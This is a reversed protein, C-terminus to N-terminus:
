KLIRLLGASPGTVYSIWSKSSSLCIRQNNAINPLFAKNATKPPSKQFYRFSVGKVPTKDRPAIIAYRLFQTM